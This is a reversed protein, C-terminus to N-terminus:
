FFLLQKRTDVTFDMVWVEGHLYNIQLSCFFQCEQHVEATLRIM